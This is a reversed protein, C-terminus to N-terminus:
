VSPDGGGASVATFLETFAERSTIVYCRGGAATIKRMMAAQLPTVRGGPRKFEIFVTGGQTILVRDPVGATGPSTFKLLLAGQQRAYDRCWREIDKELV